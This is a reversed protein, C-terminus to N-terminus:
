RQSEYEADTVKQMWTTPGFSLSVQTLPAGPLAGHWHVVQRPVRLTTGEPVEHLPKGREQTRMSGKEAFLVQGEAHSHWNSRAGPSFTYRNMRIDTTAHQTVLGVFNNPDFGQPAPAAAPAQAGFLWSTSGGVFMVSLLVLTRTM